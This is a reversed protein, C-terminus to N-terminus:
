KKRRKIEMSLYLVAMGILVFAESVLYWNLLGGPFDSRNRLASIFVLVHWLGISELGIRWSSWRRDGAIVLGGIGMLVLWGGLVRATLSSLQWPWITLFTEPVIIAVTASVLLTVAIFRLGISAVLPVVVDDPEPIGPDTVRNRWWLLPVLVPTVIYLVLWLLFPFHSLEFRQWHLITVLLMISTFAGVPLFGKSVRHWRRGFFANIFVWSGGLYGAGIFAATMNPKIEWAFREGSTEPFLYLIIFALVLFPVVIASVVRTLPLIRDDKMPEM